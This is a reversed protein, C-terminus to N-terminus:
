MDVSKMTYELDYYTHLYNKTLNSTLPTKLMMNNVIESSGFTKSNKFDRMCFRLICNLIKLIINFNEFETKKILYRIKLM